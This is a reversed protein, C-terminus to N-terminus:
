QSYRATVIDIGLDPQDEEISTVTYGKSKLMDITKRTPKQFCGHTEVIIRSPCIDMRSIVDVESGECDMVLVNCEPLQNPQRHEATSSPELDVPDGVFIQETDANVNNIELTERVIEYREPDPEYVTVSGKEGTEKAAAVTSVGFGGGFILIQDGPKVTKRIAGILKAEYDPIVDNVDFLRPSRAPYGNLMGIKRPLHDRITKYYIPGVIKRVLTNM